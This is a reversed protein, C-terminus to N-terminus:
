EEIDTVHITDAVIPADDSIDVTGPAKSVRMTWQKTFPVGAFNELLSSLAVM